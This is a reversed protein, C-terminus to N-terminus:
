KENYGIIKGPNGVVIAYDPVNKIIVAGAGITVWRGITRNQIIVSNAGVHTGENVTVGGCLVAGPSIHVYDEIKCDHDISSSTNIICYNGIISDISITASAMVVSGLGVSVTSSLVANPHLLRVPKEPSLKDVLFKRIKNNGIAFICESNSPLIPIPSEVRFGNLSKISSDDDYINTTVIRSEYLIDLIVKAHGSAGIVIM